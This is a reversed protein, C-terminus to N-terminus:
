GRSAFHMRPLFFYQQMRTSNLTLPNKGDTGLLTQRRLFPLLYDEERVFFTLRSFGSKRRGSGFSQVVVFFAVLVGGLLAAPNARFKKWFRSGSKALVPDPAQAQPDTIASM